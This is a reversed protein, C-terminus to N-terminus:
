NFYRPLGGSGFVIKFERAFDEDNATEVFSLVPTLYGKIQDILETASLERPDLTTESQLLKCLEALLRIYAEVATNVCLYSAKGAAWRIENAARVLGFYESLAEALANITEAPRDRSLPGQLFRAEAGQKQRGILGSAVIANCIQSLTLSREPSSPLDVSKIRDGFPSSVDSRLMEMVRVAIARTQKQRDESHLDQEGRLEDILNKSVKRQESNITKFLRGEEEFPLSEFAIVPVRHGNENENHEAYGYLRHQGDIIWVSKYQNPLTLTGVCTGDDTEAGARDFRVPEKFSALIANAFYGGESIFTAVERLRARTVLRQYSPAAEPDRLDRHNVYSIPLLKRPPAVFFFCPRGGLKTRVASVTIQSIAASKSLFSAHFQFRGAAGLRIAIESFYRLELERIVSIRFGAARALDPQSWEIGRTVFLWIIKKNFSEGYHAKLARAIPGKNAEFEGLDMQMSRRSRTSSYKCEAVVVTEDDVAFVDIQKKVRTARDAAIEISFDRGINLEKYGFQYLVAWFDNELIEDAPRQKKMRVGRKLVSAVEWGNAEYEPVNAAPIRTVSFRPKRRRYEAARSAKDIALTGLTM